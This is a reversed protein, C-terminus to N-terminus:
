SLAAGGRVWHQLLTTLGGEQWQKSRLTYIRTMVRDMDWRHTPAHTARLFLFSCLGLQAPTPWQTFTCYVVYVVQMHPNAM